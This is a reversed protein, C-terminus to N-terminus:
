KSKEAVKRAMNNLEVYVALTMDEKLLANNPLAMSMNAISTHYSFEKGESIKCLDRYEQELFSLDNRLFGVEFDLIRKVEQTFPVSLDLDINYGKKLADSYDKRMQETTTNYYYFHLSQKLTAIKYNLEHIKVTLELYRIAEPNKSRLFFEDDIATFIGELGKERPKPKLLQFDNTRKVQFFVKAPINDISNYKPM